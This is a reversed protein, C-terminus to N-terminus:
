DTSHCPSSWAPSTPPHVARQVPAVLDIAALDIAALDTATLDLAVRDTAPDVMAVAPYTAAMIPDTTPM